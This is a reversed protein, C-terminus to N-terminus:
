DGPGCNQATHTGHKYLTHFQDNLTRFPSNEEDTITLANAGYLTLGFRGGNSPGGVVDAIVKGNQATLQLPYNDVHTASSGPSNYSEWDFTGTGDPKLVLRFLLGDGCDVDWTGAFRRVHPDAEDSSVESHTASASPFTKRTSVFVTGATVLIVVVATAVM